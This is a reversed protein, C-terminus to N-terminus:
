ETNCVADEDELGRIASRLTVEREFDDVDWMTNLEESSIITYDYVYEIIATSESLSVLELHFGAAELTNLYEFMEVTEDDTLDNGELIHDKLQERTLTIRVTWTRIEEDYSEIVIVTDDGAIMGPANTCTTTAEGRVRSSCATLFLVTAIAFLKKFM